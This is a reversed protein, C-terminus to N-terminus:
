SEDYYDGCLFDFQERIGGNNVCSAMESHVDHVIADLVTVLDDDTIRPGWNEFDDGIRAFLALLEADSLSTDNHVPLNM